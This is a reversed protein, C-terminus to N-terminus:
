FDPRAVEGFLLVDTSRQHREDGYQIRECGGSYHHSRDMRGAPDPKM